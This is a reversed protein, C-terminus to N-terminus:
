IGGGDGDMLAAGALRIREAATPTRYGVVRLRYDSARKIYRAIRRAMPPATDPQGNRPRVAVLALLWIDEPGTM